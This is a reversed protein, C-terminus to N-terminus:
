AEVKRAIKELEERIAHLENAVPSPLHMAGRYPRSDITTVETVTREGYSYTATISFVPPTLASDLDDGVFQPGMALGFMIEAGPSLQEISEQFATVERLNTGDRRGYQYFDRDLTLRVNRAGTKGSNTVRLYFLHVNPVTVLGISVYPRTASEIQEGMVAVTRNNARMIFFTVVAYFGTIAILVGTLQEITM